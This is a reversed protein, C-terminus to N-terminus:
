KNDSTLLATAKTKAEAKTVNNNDTNHNDRSTIIALAIFAIVLIAFRIREATENVEKIEVVEEDLETTKGSM